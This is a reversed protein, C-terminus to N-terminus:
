ATITQHYATMLWEVKRESVFATLMYQLM